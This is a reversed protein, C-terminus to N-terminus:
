QMRRRDCLEEGIGIEVDIVTISGVLGCFVWDSSIAPFLINSENSVEQAELQWSPQCAGIATGRMISHM